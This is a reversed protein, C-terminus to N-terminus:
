EDFGRYVAKREQRWNAGLGSGADVHVDVVYIQGATLAIDDAFSGRYNGNSAAVYELTATGITVGLRTKLTAVVSADTVYAGSVEDRLGTLEVAATNGILIVEM